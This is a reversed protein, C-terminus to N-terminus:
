SRYDGIITSLAMDGPNLDLNLWRFYPEKRFWTFQRKAYHRSAVKFSDVFHKYDTGQQMSDLYELAQRYGIAQACSSNNRLGKAEMRMVEDLLGAELMHDCREEIRQYLTERPRYLFWCKYDFDTPFHRSKWSLQSVKQQTLSIIELARVIKQRDHVTITKAYVPDLVKLKNYLADPGTQEMERELAARVEPVSPPGSPPGYLLVHLYFGSGGVFIPVRGRRLIQDCVKRAEYYFDVVNFPEHVDRIDILHHPVHAREQSSAKATGIDLGRYIQMSDASIIEGNIQEALKLSLATKGCGTPGSLIIVRGKGTHTVVRKPQPIPAGKVQGLLESLAQEPLTCSM